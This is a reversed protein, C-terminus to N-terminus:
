TSSVAGSATRYALGLSSAIILWGWIGGFMLYLIAFAGVAIAANGAARDNDAEGSRERKAALEKLERQAEEREKKQEAEHAANLRQYEAEREAPSMKAIKETAADTAQKYEVSSARDPHVNVRHLLYDVTALEQLREAKEEEDLKKVWAAYKDKPMAKLKKEVETYIKVERASHQVVADALDIKDEDEEDTNESPPPEPENPTLREQENYLTRVIRYDYMSVDPMKAAEARAQRVKNITKMSPLVLALIVLLRALLMVAFTIGAATTGGLYSYGEQGRQMGLGALLAILFLPLMGWYGTVRAIIVWVIM